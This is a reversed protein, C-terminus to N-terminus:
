GETEKAAATIEALRRQAVPDQLTEAYYRVQADPVDGVTPAKSPAAVDPHEVLVSVSYCLGHAHDIPVDDPLYNGPGLGSDAGAWVDCIDAKPHSLSLRFGIASIFSKLRGTIPDLCSQIHAERHAQNIETRAIRMAQYRPNDAGAKALGEQLRKGLDRSSVGETLAQLITDEIAKRAAQDLNYLRNSLKLGDRYYRTAARNVAGAAVHGFRVVIQTGDSLSLTRNLEPFLSRDQTQELMAAIAAERDAAAQASELMGGDLLQGYDAKLDRLIQDLDQLLNAYQERRLGADEPLQAAREQIAAAADDFTRQLRQINERTIELQRRRSDVLIKRYDAGTATGRDKRENAKPM